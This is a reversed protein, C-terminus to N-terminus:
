RGAAEIENSILEMLLMAATAQANKSEDLKGVSREVDAIAYNIIVFPYDAAIWSSYGVKNLNPAKYYGIIAGPDNTSSIWNLVRGGLYYVDTKQCSFTDFLKDPSVENFYGGMMESIPDWKRWYSLKKFKPLDNMIDITGKYKAPSYTFPVEAVDRKFLDKAHVM